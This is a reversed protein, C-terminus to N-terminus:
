VPFVYTSAFLHKVMIFINILTESRAVRVARLFPCPSCSGGKGVEEPM